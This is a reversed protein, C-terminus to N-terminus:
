RAEPAPWSPGAIQSLPRLQLRTTANLHDIREADSDPRLRLRRRLRVEATSLAMRVSIRDVDMALTDTNLLHRLQRLSNQIESFESANVSVSRGLLVGVFKGLGNATERDHGHSFRDLEALVRDPSPISQQAYYQVMAERYNEPARHLSLAAQRVYAFLGLAFSRPLLM